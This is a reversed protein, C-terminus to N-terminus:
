KYWKGGGFVWMKGDYSTSTHYGRGSWGASATAQTWTTGNTSWWVDNKKTSGSIGGMVWLKGDHVVSTHDYRGSWAAAATAQTWEVGDTSWWVDNKNGATTSGVTGGIVWMKGDSVVATHDHRASWAAAATAQTWTIGDTSWWVDNKDTYSSYGGIVWMKGDYVVSAHKERYGWGANATARTWDNGDTSWWVDNKTDGDDDYGGMLWMKGDYVVSTHTGRWWWWADDDWQSRERVQTWDVGDSAFVNRQAVIERGITANGFENEATLTVFYDGETTFVHQVHQATSTQGDGFDWVYSTASDATANFWMPIDLLTKNYPTDMNVNTPEGEASATGVLLVLGMLLLIYKLDM